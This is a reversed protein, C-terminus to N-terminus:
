IPPWGAGSLARQLPAFLSLWVGTLMLMGIGILVAGGAIEIGRANRRLIASVRPTGAGAALALFSLGLGLSYALLLAVGARM